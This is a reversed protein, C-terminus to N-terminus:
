YTAPLCHMHVEPALDLDRLLCSYLAIRARLEEAVEDGAAGSLDGDDELLLALAPSWAARSSAPSDSPTRADPTAGAPRHLTTVHLLSPARRMADAAATGRMGTPPAVGGSAPEAPSYCNSGFAPSGSSCPALRALRQLQQLKRLRQQAALAKGAALAPQPAGGASRWRHTGAAPEQHVELSPTAWGQGRTVWRRGEAPM